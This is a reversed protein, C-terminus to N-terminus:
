GTVALQGAELQEDSIEVARQEVRAALHVLRVQSGEGLKPATAQV